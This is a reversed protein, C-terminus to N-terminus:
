RENEERPSVFQKRFAVVKVLYDRTEQYPLNNRLRDYVAPPELSNIQNIASTSNAAFAKYV